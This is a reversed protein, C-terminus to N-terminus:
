IVNSIQFLCGIFKNNDLKALLWTDKTSNEVVLSFKYYQYIYLLEVDIGGLNKEKFFDGRVKEFNM